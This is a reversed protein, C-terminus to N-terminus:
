RGLGAAALSGAWGGEGLAVARCAPVGRNCGSHSPRPIKMNREAGYMTLETSEPM